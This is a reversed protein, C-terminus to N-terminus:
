LLLLNMYKVYLYVSFRGTKHLKSVYVHIGKMKGCKYKGVPQHPGFVLNQISSSRRKKIYAMFSFIPFLETKWGWPGIPIRIDTLMKIKLWYAIRTDSSNELGKYQPDM